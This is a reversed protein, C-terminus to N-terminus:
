RLGWFDIWGMKSHSTPIGPPPLTVDINNELFSFLPSARSDPRSNTSVSFVETGRNRGLQGHELVRATTRPILTGCMLIGWRERAREPAPLLSFRFRDTGSFTSDSTSFPDQKIYPSRFGLKM